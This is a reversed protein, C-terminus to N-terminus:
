EESEICGKPIIITDGEYDSRISKDHENEIPNGCKDCIEM